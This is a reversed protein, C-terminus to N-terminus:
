NQKMFENLQAETAKLVIKKRHNKWKMYRYYPQPNKKEYGMRILEETIDGCVHSCQAAIKGARMGLDSNVLIYMVYDDEESEKTEMKEEKKSKREM